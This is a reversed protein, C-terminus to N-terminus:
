HTFKQTFLSIQQQQETNSLHLALHVTETERGTATETTFIYSGFSMCVHVLNIESHIKLRLFMASAFIM